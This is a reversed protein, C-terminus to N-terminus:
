FDSRDLTALAARLRDIARRPSRTSGVAIPPRAGAHLVYTGDRLILIPRDAFSVSQEVTGAIVRLLRAPRDVVVVRRSSALGALAVALGLVALLLCLVRVDNIQGFAEMREQMYPNGCFDDSGHPPYPNAVWSYMLDDDFTFLFPVGLILAWWPRPAGIFITERPLNAGAPSRYATM